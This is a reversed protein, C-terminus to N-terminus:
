KGSFKKMREEELSKAKKYEEEDHYIVSGDSKIVITLAIFDHLAQKNKTFIMLSLSVLGLIVVFIIQLYLTTTFSIFGIVFLLPIIRLLLQWKKILYGHDNVLSLQMIKKSITRGFPSFLPILVYFILLSILSSFLVLLSNILSNQSTAKKIFSQAYFDKIANNYITKSYKMAESNKTVSGDDLIFEEKLVGLKDFLPHNDEDLQYRFYDGDLYNTDLKLINENFWSVTYYESRNKGDVLKDADLSYNVLYDSYYKYLHNILLYNDDEKVYFEDEEYKLLGNNEDERALYSHAIHESQLSLNNQFTSGSRTAIFSSPILLAFAGLLFFVIDLAAASIRIFPKPFNLSEVLSNNKRKVEESM